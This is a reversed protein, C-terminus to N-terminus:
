RIEAERMFSPISLGGEGPEFHTAGFNSQQARAAGADTRGTANDMLGVVDDVPNGERGPGLASDNDFSYIKIGRLHTDKGNQHNELIQMQMVWAVLTNGDPDGGAGAIPVQQWGVPNEMAMTAFEILNNESTGAKFVVKTPTYSEDENYDVYFRIDRIGVRKTFYMTLKHPQPGDSQWFQKLDDSKLEEVGNGPKHSSVTFRALNSIEKLGATAPDFLPAIEQAQDEDVGDEDDEDDEDVDEEETESNEDEYEELSVSRQDLRTDGEEVAHNGNFSNDVHAALAAAQVLAPMPRARGHLISDDPEPESSSGDYDAPPMSLRPGEALTAILNDVDLRMREAMMENLTKVNEQAAHLAADDNEIDELECSPVPRFIRVRKRLLKGNKQKFPLDGLPLRDMRSRRYLRFPNQPPARRRQRDPPQDPTRHLPPGDPTIMSAGAPSAGQSLQPRSRAAPGSPTAAFHPAPSSTIDSEGPRPSSAANAHARPHANANTNAHTAAVHRARRSGRTIDM